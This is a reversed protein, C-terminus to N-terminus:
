SRGIYDHGTNKVIVNMGIKVNKLAKSIDSSNNVIVYKVNKPVNHGWSDYYGNNTYGDIKDTQYYPNEASVKLELACSDAEIVNTFYDNCNSFPIPWDFIKQYQSLSNIKHKYKLVKYKFSEM